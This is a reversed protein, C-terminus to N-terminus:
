HKTLFVASVQKPFRRRSTTKWIIPHCILTLGLLSVERDPKMRPTPGMRLQQAPASSRAHGAEPIWTIPPGVAPKAPPPRGTTM